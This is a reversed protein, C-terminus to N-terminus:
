CASATSPSIFIFASARCGIGTWKTSGPQRRRELSHRDLHAGGPRLGRRDRDALDMAALSRELAGYARRAIGGLLLIVILWILIMLVVGSRYVGGVGRGDGRRVLPRPGDRHHEVRSVVPRLWARLVPTFPTSSIVRTSKRCGSSPSCSPKTTFGTSAGAPLGGNTASRTWGPECGPRGGPKAKPPPVSVCFLPRDPVIRRRHGGLGSRDSRRRSSRDDAAFGTCSRWAVAGESIWGRHLPFGAHCSPITMAYGPRKTVPMGLPGFFVRFILRFTYLSTLLAGVM